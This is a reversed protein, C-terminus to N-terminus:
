LHCRRHREWWRSDHFGHWILVAAQQLFFLFLAYKRIEPPSTILRLSPPPPHFFDHDAM